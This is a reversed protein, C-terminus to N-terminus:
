PVIKVICSCVLDASHATVVFKRGPQANKSAAVANEDALYIQGDTDQQRGTLDKSIQYRVERNMVTGYQDMLSACLYKRGAPNLTMRPEAFRLVTAEPEAKSLRLHKVARRGNKHVASVFVETGEAANEDVTLMGTERDISIYLQEIDSESLFEEGSIDKSLHWSVLEKPMLKDFQDLVQATMASASRGFAPIKLYKRPSETNIAINTVKPAEERKYVRFYDILAEKPYIGRDPGLGITEERSGGYVSFLTMMRYPPTRDTEQVLEGDLYFKTGTEDWEFGYRHFESSASRRIQTGPVWLYQIARSGNPHIVPRWFNMDFDKSCRDLTQEIIDFEATQDSYEGIPYLENNVNEYGNQDDQIGLMWWAFHSGDGTDPFRARIEFYGYQTAFGDFDMINRAGTVAGFRHLHRREFSQISSVRHGADQSCWPERGASCAISLCSDRFSYDALAKEDTTWGRLYYPSWVEPDLEASDFEENYFLKWGEKKLPAPPVDRLSPVKNIEVNLVAEEDGDNACVKIVRSEAVDSGVILMNKQLCVGAPAELLSLEANSHEPKLLIQRRTSGSAPVIISNTGILEPMDFM